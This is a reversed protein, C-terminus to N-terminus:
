IEVPPLHEPNAKGKIERWRTETPIHYTKLRKSRPYIEAGHTTKKKEVLKRCSDTLKLLDCLGSCCSGRWSPVRMLTQRNTEKACHIARDSNVSISYKVQKVRSMGPGQHLRLVEEWVCVENHSTLLSRASMTPVHNVEATTCVPPM